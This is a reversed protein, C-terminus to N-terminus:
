KQDGKHYTCDTHRASYESRPTSMRIQGKGSDNVPPSKLQPLSAQPHGDTRLLISSQTMDFSMPLMSQDNGCSTHKLKNFLDSPGCCPKHTGRVIGYPVAGQWAPEALEMSLWPVINQHYFKVYSCM